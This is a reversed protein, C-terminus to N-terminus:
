SDEDVNHKNLNLIWSLFTICLFAILLHVIIWTFLVSVYKRSTKFGENISENYYWIEYFSMLALFTFTEYFIRIYVSFKFFRYAKSIFRKFYHNQVQNALYLKIVILNVIGLVSLIQVLALNNVITSGSACDLKELYPHSQDFTLQQVSSYSTLTKKSLTNLVQVPFGSYAIMDEVQDPTFKSILPLLMIQQMMHIVAWDNRKPSGAILRTALSLGTSIGVSLKFASIKFSSITPPTFSFRESAQNDYEEKSTNVKLGEDYEEKSTNVKLEGGYEEKSTNVKLEEGHKTSDKSTKSDLNTIKKNVNITLKFMMATKSYTVMMDIDNSIAKSTDPSKIKIRPFSFDLIQIALSSGSYYHFFYEKEDNSNLTCPLDIIVDQIQNREMNMIVPEADYIHLFYSENQMVQFMKLSANRSSLNHEPTSTILYIMKEELPQDKLLLVDRYADQFVLNSSLQFDQYVGNSDYKSSFFAESIPVQKHISINDKVKFFNLYGDTALLINQDSSPWGIHGIVDIVNQTLANIKLIFSQCMFNHALLFVAGDSIELNEIYPVCGNGRNTKKITGILSFDTINSQFYVLDGHLSTIAHWITGTTDDNTARISKYEDGLHMSKHVKEITRKNSIDFLLQIAHFDYKSDFAYFFM